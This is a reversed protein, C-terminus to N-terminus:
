WGESIEAIDTLVKTYYKTCRSRQKISSDSGETILWMETVVEKVTRLRNNVGVAVAGTELVKDVPIRYFYDGGDGTIEIEIKGGILCLDVRGHLGRLTMETITM